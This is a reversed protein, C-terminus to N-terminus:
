GIGMWPGVGSDRVKGKGVMKGFRGGGGDWGSIGVNVRM